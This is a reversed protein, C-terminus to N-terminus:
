ESVESEKESLIIKDKDTCGYSFPSSNFMVTIDKDEAARWGNPVSLPMVCRIGIGNIYLAPNKEEETYESYNYTMKTTSRIIDRHRIEMEPISDSYKVRNG